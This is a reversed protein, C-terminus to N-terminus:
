DSLWTFTYRTGGIAHAPDWDLQYMGTLVHFFKGKAFELRGWGFNPGRRADRVTIARTVPGHDNGRLNMGAVFELGDWCSFLGCVTAERYIDIGKISWIQPATKLVIEISGSGVVGHDVDLQIRDGDRLPHIPNSVFVGDEFRIFDYWGITSATAPTASFAFALTCTILAVAARWRGRLLLLGKMM